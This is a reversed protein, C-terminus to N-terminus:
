ARHIALSISMPQSVGYVNAPQQKHAERERV